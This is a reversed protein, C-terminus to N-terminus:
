LRDPPNRPMPPTTHPPHSPSLSHAPTRAHTGEEGGLMAFMRKRSATYMETQVREARGQGMKFSHQMKSGDLPGLTRAGQAKPPAKPM